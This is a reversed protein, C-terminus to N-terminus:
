STARPSRPSSDEMKKLKRMERLLLIGTIVFSLGDSVPQANWVGDLKWFLPLIYILPILFIFQRSLGLVLSKLPKGSAMFYGAGLVQLGMLPLLMFYHRLAYVGLDGLGSSPGAFLSVFAGPFLQVAAFCFTSFATAAAIAAFEAKRVRGYLKAGINYGVIPQMGMNMGILTLFVLNSIAFVIGMATVAADGGYRELQNNMIGSTVASALDSLATASGLAMISLAIDIRPIFNALKLKLLSKGSLYYVIVWISGVGQSIVTALASGVIGMKLVFIFIPCLIV